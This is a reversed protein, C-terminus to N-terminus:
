WQSLLSISESWEDIWLSFFLLEFSFSFPLVYFYFTSTTTSTSTPTFAFTFAFLYIFLAESAALKVKAKALKERRGSQWQNHLRKLQRKMQVHEAQVWIFHNVCKIRRGRRRRRRELSMWRNITIMKDPHTLPLASEARPFESEQFYGSLRSLRIALMQGISSVLLEGVRRASSLQAPSILVVIIYLLFNIHFGALRCTSIIFKPSQNFSCQIPGM